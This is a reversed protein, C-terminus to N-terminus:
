LNSAIRNTTLLQERLRYTLVVETPFDTQEMIFGCSFSERIVALALQQEAFYFLDLILPRRHSFTQVRSPQWYSSLFRCHKGGGSLLPQDQQACYYQYSVQM